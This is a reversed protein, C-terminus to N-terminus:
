FLDQHVFAITLIGYLLNCRRIDHDHLDFLHGRHQDGEPKSIQASDQFSVVGEAALCLLRRVDIGCINFLAVVDGRCRAM